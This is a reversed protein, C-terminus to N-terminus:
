PPPLAPWGALRMPFTRHITPVPPEDVQPAAQRVEPAARLKAGELHLVEAVQGVQRVARAPEPAEAVKVVAVVVAAAPM